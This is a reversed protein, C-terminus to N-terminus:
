IINDGTQPYDASRAVLVTEIATRTAEDEDPFLHGYTDLTTM